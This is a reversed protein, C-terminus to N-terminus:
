KAEIRSDTFVRRNTLAGQAAALQERMTRAKDRAKALTVTPFVGCSLSKQRGAFTYRFAWWKRGTIEIQLFLNGGDRLRYMKERPAAARIEAATLIENAM